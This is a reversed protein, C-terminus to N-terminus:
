ATIFIYRGNKRCVWAFGQLECSREWGNYLKHWYTLGRDDCDIEAQSPEHESVILGDGMRKSSRVYTHDFYENPHADAYDMIDTTGLTYTDLVIEKCLTKEM